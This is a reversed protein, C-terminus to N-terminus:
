RPGDFLPALDAFTRNLWVKVRQRELLGLASDGDRHNIAAWFSASHKDIKRMSTEHLARLEIITAGHEVAIAKAKSAHFHAFNRGRGHNLVVVYAAKGGFATVLNELLGISDQGDDMVHWFRVPIREEAFLALVDSEDLWRRLPPMTQAALDVLVQRQPDAAIAEAIADLGAFDDVVVPAAYDGYFRTVTTHSRDTDFGIFPQRRDIAYQALVRTLVSKGVGGKEGGIFEIGAM